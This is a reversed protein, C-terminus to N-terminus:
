ITLKEGVSRAIEIEIENSEKMFVSL